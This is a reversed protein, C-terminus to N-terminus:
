RFRLYLVLGGIIISIVGEVPGIIHRGFLFIGIIWGFLYTTSWYNMNDFLLIFSIVPILIIIISAFPIELGNVVGILLTSTVVGSISGVLAQAMGDPFTPM